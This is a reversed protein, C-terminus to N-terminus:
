FLNIVGMGFLLVLVVKKFKADNIKNGLYIGLYSGIIMIPLLFFLKTFEPNNFIGKSYYIAITVINLTIFLFTLSSRFENKNKDDNALLVVIPPGSLSVAGNLVGSLVGAIIYSITKNKFNFKAGTFMLTSILILLISVFTKLLHEDIFILMQVGIPICIIAFFGLLAIEKYNPKIKLKFFIFLNLFLSFVVLTPVVVKLEYFLGLLPLAILSFGFSAAGQVLSAMFIILSACLLVFFM